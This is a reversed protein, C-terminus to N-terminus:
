AEDGLVVISHAKSAQPRRYALACAAGAIAVVGSVLFATGVGRADVLLGGITAGAALSIQFASVMLASGAEYLRPSSTFMWIQVCVPWAGFAAGWVMVM